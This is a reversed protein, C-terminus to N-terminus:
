FLQVQVKIILRQINDTVNSVPLFYLILMNAIQTFYQLFVRKSKQYKDRDGDEDGDGYEGGDRDRDADGKRCWNRDIYRYSKTKIEIEIKIQVKLKVLLNVQANIKM